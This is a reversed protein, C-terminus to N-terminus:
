VPRAELESAIDQVQKRNYRRVGNPAKPVAPISDVFAGWVAHQVDSPLAAFEEITLYEDDPM